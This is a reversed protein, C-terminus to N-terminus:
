SWTCFYILFSLFASGSYNNIWTYFLFDKIARVSPIKFTLDRRRWLDLVKMTRWWCSITLKNSRFNCFWGLSKIRRFIEWAIRRLWKSYKNLVFWRYFRNLFRISFSNVNSFLPFCLINYLNSRLCTLCHKFVFIWILFGLFWSIRVPLISKNLLSLLLYELLLWFFINLHRIFWFILYFGSYDIFFLRRNM